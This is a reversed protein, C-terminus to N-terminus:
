GKVGGGWSSNGEFSGDTHKIKSLSLSAAGGGGVRGGAGLGVVLPIIRRKGMRILTLTALKGWPLRAHIPWNWRSNVTGEKNGRREKKSALLRNLGVGGSRLIGGGIWVGGQSSKAKGKGTGRWNRRYSSM